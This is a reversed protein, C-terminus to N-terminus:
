DWDDDFRYHDHIIGCPSLAWHLEELVKWDEECFQIDLEKLKTLGFLPFYNTFPNDALSLMELNKLGALVSLDEIGTKELYLWELRELCALPSFDQIPNNLDSSCM